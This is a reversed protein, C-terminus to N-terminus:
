TDAGCIFFCGGVSQQFGPYFTVLNPLNKLTFVTEAYKHSFQSNKM